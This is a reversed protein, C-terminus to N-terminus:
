CQKCQHQQKKPPNVEKVLLLDDDGLLDDEEDDDSITIVEVVGELQAGPQQPGGFLLLQLLQPLEAESVGQRGEWLQLARLALLLLKAAASATVAAASGSGEQLQPVAAGLAVMASAFEPLARYNKQVRSCTSSSKQRDQLDALAHMPALQLGYLRLLEDPDFPQDALRFYDMQQHNPLYLGSEVAQQLLHM